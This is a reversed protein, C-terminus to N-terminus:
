TAKGIHKVSWQRMKQPQQQCWSDGLPNLIASKHSCNRSVMSAVSRTAVGSISHAIAPMKESFDPTISIESSPFISIDANAAAATAVKVEEAIVPKIAATPTETSRPSKCPSAEIVSRPLWTILPRAILMRADPSVM